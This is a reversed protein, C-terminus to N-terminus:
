SLAERLFIIPHSVNTRLDRVCITFFSDRNQFQVGDWYLSVPMIKSYHMGAAVAKQRLAHTEWRDCDFRTTEAAPEILPMPGTDYGNFINSPLHIPVRGEVRQNTKNDHLPTTVYTLTPDEFERGLVLRVRRYGKDSNPNVSLDSVGQGGCQLIHWALHGLFEADVTAGTLYALWLFKRLQKGAEAHHDQMTNPEYVGSTGLQHHLRKM